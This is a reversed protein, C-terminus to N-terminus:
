ARFVGGSGESAEYVTLYPSSRCSPDTRLEMLEHYQQEKGIGTEKERELWSRMKMELRM